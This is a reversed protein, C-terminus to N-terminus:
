FINQTLVTNKNRLYEQRNSPVNKRNQLLRWQSSLLRSSIIRIYKKTRKTFDLMKRGFVAKKTIDNIIISFTFSSFVTQLHSHSLHLFKTNSYIFHYNSCKFHAFHFSFPTTQKDFTIYEVTCFPCLFVLVLWHLSSKYFVNESM